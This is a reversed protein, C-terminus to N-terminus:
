KLNWFAILKKSMYGCPIVRKRLLRFAGEMRENIYSIVEFGHLATSKIDTESGPLQIDDSFLWGGPNLKELCFFHDWAVEPYFHGGDLWILDFNQLNQKQLWLTNTQLFTINPQDLKIFLSGMHETEGQSHWGQYIPDDPPLNITTVHAGPFLRSLFITTDGIDTGVELIQRPRFGSVALATFFMRHQSDNPLLTLDCSQSVSEYLECVEDMGVGLEEYFFDNYHAMEQEDYITSSLAQIRLANGLNLFAIALDPKIQIAQRFHSIAEDLRNLQQLSCGLNVHADANDPQIDITKRYSAVAKDFRGSNLFANALDYHQVALKLAQKDSLTQQEPSPSASHVSNAELATKQALERQRHKEANNM